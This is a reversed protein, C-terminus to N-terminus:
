QVITISIKSNDDDLQFFSDRSRISRKQEALESISFDLLFGRWAEATFWRNFGCSQQLLYLLGSKDQSQRCLSSCPLVFVCM